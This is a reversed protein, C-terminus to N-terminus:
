VSGYVEVRLCILAKWTVPLFRIYRAYVPVGLPHQNITNSGGERRFKVELDNADKYTPWVEGYSKSLALKFEIVRQNGSID